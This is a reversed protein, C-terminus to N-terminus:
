PRSRSRASRSPTAPPRDIANEQRSLALSQPLEDPYEKLLKQRTTPDWHIAFQDLAPVSHLVINKVTEDDPRVWPAVAPIWDAHNAILDAMTTNVARIRGGARLLALVVPLEGRDVGKGVANVHDMFSEAVVENPDAGLNLQTQIDELTGATVLDLFSQGTLKKPRRTPRQLWALM